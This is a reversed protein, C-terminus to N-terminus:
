CRFKLPRGGKGLIYNLMRHTRYFSNDSLPLESVKLHEKDMRERATNIQERLALLDEDFDAKIIFEHEAVANLDITTEVM